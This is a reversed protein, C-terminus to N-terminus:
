RSSQRLREETSKDSIRPWGNARRAVSTAAVPLVGSTTGHGVPPHCSSAPASRKAPLAGAVTPPRSCNLNREDMGRDPMSRPSFDFGVTGSVGDCRMGPLAKTPPPEPFGTGPSTDSPEGLPTTERRAQRTEGSCDQCEGVVVRPLTPSRLADPAFRQTGMTKEDQPRSWDRDMHTRQPDGYVM